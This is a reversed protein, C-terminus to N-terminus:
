PPYVCDSSASRRPSGSPVILLRMNVPRARRRSSRPASARMPTPGAQLLLMSDAHNRGELAQFAAVEGTHRVPRAVIQRAHEVEGVLELFLLVPALCMMEEGSPCKPHDELLGRGPRPDGELDSDGLKAAGAEVERRAVELEASAFRELVRCH